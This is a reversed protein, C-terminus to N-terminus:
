LRMQGLNGRFATQTLQTAEMDRGLPPRVLMSPLAVSPLVPHSAPPGALPTETSHVLTVQIGQTAIHYIAKRSCPM